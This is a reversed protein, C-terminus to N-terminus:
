LSPHPHPMSQTSSSTGSILLLWNDSNLYWFWDTLASFYSLPSKTELFLSSHTLSHKSSVLSRISLVKWLMCMSNINPSNPVAEFFFAIHECCIYGRVPNLSWWISNCHQHLLYCLGLDEGAMTRHDLDLIRVWVLHLELEATVSINCKWYLGQCAEWCVHRKFFVDRDQASEEKRGRMYIRWFM